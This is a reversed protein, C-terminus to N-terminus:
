NQGESMSAAAKLRAADEPLLYREAVLHDVARGYKQRYEAEGGPYREELSPRSDGSALREATTRAFAIWSGNASCLDGEAFGARRIAKGMTALPAAVEPVVVGAMANGDGDLRPVLLPYKSASEKPPLVSFDRVGLESIKSNYPRGPITPYFKRQEAVTVATGDAVSPTRMAPSAVGDRVWRVMADFAARYYPHPEVPNPPDMCGANGQQHAATLMWYRVNPPLQIARGRTDTVVLSGHAGYWESETDVQIVNPCTKSASCRALLGDTKGTLPDTTTGYTFPFEDMPFNHDEHQRTWRGPQAFRANVFTRRVGAVYATTGDFVKRGASDQNFGQYIFDRIVRGSQSSGVAVALKLAPQGNVFLPNAHGAEDNPSHRLFSVLDRIAAFGLGMVIPKKAEYV